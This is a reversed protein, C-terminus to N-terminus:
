TSQLRTQSVLLYFLIFLCLINVKQKVEDVLLHHWMMDIDQEQREINRKELIQMKQMEKLLKEDEKTSMM